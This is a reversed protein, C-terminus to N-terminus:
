ERQYRSTSHRWLPLRLRERVMAPWTDPQILMSVSLFCEQTCQCRTEQIARRAERARPSRWLAALDCDFDRLNGLPEDLLECARTSGDTYIVGGLSGAACGGGARRGDLIDLIVRRRAANKASLWGAGLHGGHGRYEGAAVRREIFEGAARYAARDVGGACPDRPAGRTVNVLWEGDPNLAAVEAGIAAVHDQNARSITTLVGVDFRAHRAKLRRLAAITEVARAYCGDVGRIRDHLAGVGDLSVDVRFPTDPNERLLRESAGVIRETRFGSTPIQYRSLRTTKRFMTILEVLDARQFAEGGTVSLFWLRDISRAVKEYEDFSLRRGSLEREKWEENFWCHACKMWCADSVFLILYQPTRLARALGDTLASYLRAKM